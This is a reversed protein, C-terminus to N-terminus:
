GRHKLSPAVVSDEGMRERSELIERISYDDERKASYAIMEALLGFLVFQVGVILLLVGLM